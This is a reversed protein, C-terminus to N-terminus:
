TGKPHIEIPSPCPVPSRRRLRWAYGAFLVMGLVLLTPTMPEPVQGEVLPSPNGASTFKSTNWVNFDRVDTTGDGNFDGTAWDTGSTFKNTNWVNFDRVDTTTDLNADGPHLDYDLTVSLTGFGYTLGNEDRETGADASVYDGFGDVSVFAGGIGEEGFSRILMYTGAEFPALGDIKFKLSSGADISVDAMTAILGIEAGRIEVALQSGDALAMGGTADLKGTSAVELIGGTAVEVNEHVTLISGPGVLVKGADNISLGRTVGDAAVTVAHGEVLTFFDASPLTAGDDWTATVNWNGEAASTLLPPTVDFFFEYVRDAMADAIFLRQGDPSIGLNAYGLNGDIPVLTDIVVSVEGTATVIRVVEGAGTLVLLDDTLPDFVLSRPDDIVESTILETVTDIGTIEYLKDAPWDAVFIQTDNVAVDALDLFVNGLGDGADLDAVLTMEGGATDPSWVWVEEFGGAGRDVSIISGPDVLGGTYSDPVVAMGTPDDDGSNFESIWIEDITEGFAVRNIEGSHDESFFVDGDGPDVTVGALNSGDVVKTITDDQAIQFLGNDSGFRRGVYIQGDAESFDIGNPNDFDVIRALTWGEEVAQADPYILEPLAPDVPVTLPTYTGDYLGLVSEESLVGHYVAVDDIYGDFDRGGDGARHNGIHFGDMAPISDGTLIVDDRLEGNHYFQAREADLDLVMVVHNWEGAVIAPGSGDSGIGQFWWEADGGGAADRLGFALSYGPASEWVFNRGDSGDASIDTYNYWASVTIQRDREVDAVERPIDVYTMNGSFDGSDLKLAGSGIKAEAETSISLYPEGVPTGEYVDNNVESSYDTDFTWYAVPAGTPLAVPRDPGEIVPVTQPTYTGDYLGMVAFDDLTGHYVAFDDIFGQWNRTGDGARHNGINLGETPQAVADAGTWSHLLGDHYFLSEEALRNYVMTVHHWQGDNVIPGSTNSSSGEFFWELDRAGGENRLGVGSTFGPFTEWLFNRPDTAEFGLTEDFKYWTSITFATPNYDPVVAGEIHIYDGTPTDHSIKLGGTGRVFEDVSNTISTGTGVFTGELGGPVSDTADSDFTWYHALEAFASSSGMGFCVAAVISFVIRNWM